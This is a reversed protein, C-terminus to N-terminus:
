IIEGDDFNGGVYSVIRKNLAEFNEARYSEGEDFIARNLKDYEGSFHQRM